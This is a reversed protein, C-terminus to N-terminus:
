KWPPCRGDPCDRRPYEPIAGQSGWPPVRPKDTGGLFILISRHSSYIGRREGGVEYGTVIGVTNPGDLLPGGSRGHWPIGRTFTHGPTIELVDARARTLMPKMEDYGVSLLVRSMRHGNAAVSAVYPLPGDGLEILALDLTYNLALFRTTAARARALPTPSPVDITLPNKWGGNEFAHACTLILSRGRETEIVVGSCGHSPIRVAADEADAWLGGPLTLILVCGTVYRM